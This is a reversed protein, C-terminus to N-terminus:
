FPAVADFMQQGWRPQQVDSLTGRGGYTIRAEAIKDSTIVNNSTVDEPRIVGQIAIERLESNVRLEQKGQIVLNGNPLKQTIVAALNVTVTEQRTLAGTGSTSSTSGFNFLSSPNASKPLAHKLNQELGFFSFSKAAESNDGASNTQNALKASDTINITVTLIDGIAVARQDKFFARAGPRWLSNAGATPSQPQPMPLSVPQYNPARTPDDIRSLRPPEGVESLKQVTNCASLMSV